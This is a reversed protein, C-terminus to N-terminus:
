PIFYPREMAMRPLVSRAELVEVRAALHRVIAEASESNRKKVAGAAKHYARINTGDLFVVGMAPDQDKVREFLAEWVVVKSWRIFLQAATRWHGFVSPLSRWKAGDQHRWFIASVTQRLNRPPIKGKPRVVEILPEWVRGEDDSMVSQLVSMM